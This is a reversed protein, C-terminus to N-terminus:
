SEIVFDWRIKVTGDTEIIGKPPNPFPAAQRFAEVAADDLDRVGSEGLVQVKVLNGTDNLVIVLRTVKNTDSAITRGQRVMRTVKERVRPQWWQNLQVKIRHYFGYYKYEKTNLKTILDETVGDLHDNTASSEGKEAGIEGKSFNKLEKKMDKQVLAAYPDYKQSFLQPTAPKPKSAAQKQEPASAKAAKKMSNKFQEGAKAKTEKDVKNDKESLFKATDTKQQNAASDAIQQPMPEAKQLAKIEEDSLLSVEVSQNKVNSDTLVVKSFYLCSFFVVHFLVSAIVYDQFTFKIKKTMLLEKHQVKEFQSDSATGM